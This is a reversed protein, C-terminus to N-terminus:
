FIGNIKKQFTWDLDYWQNFILPWIYEDSRYLMENWKKKKKISVDHQNKLTRSINDIHVQPLQNLQM